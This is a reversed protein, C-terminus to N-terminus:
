FAVPPPSPHIEEAGLLAAVSRVVGPTHRFDVFGLESVQRETWNECGRFISNRGLSVSRVTNKVTYRINFFGLVLM